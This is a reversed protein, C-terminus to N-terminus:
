DDIVADDEFSVSQIVESLRIYQDMKMQLAGLTKWRGDYAFRFVVVGPTAREAEVWYQRGNREFRMRFLENPLYYAHTVQSYRYQNENILKLYNGAIHSPDGYAGDVLFLQSALLKGEQGKIEFLMPTNDDSERFENASRWCITSVDSPEVAFVESLVILDEDDDLALFDACHEGDIGRLSVFDIPDWEETLNSALVGAPFNADMFSMEVHSIGMVHGIEHLMVNYLRSDNSWFSGNPAPGEYRQPGSDAVAWIFGLSRGTEEAYSTRLAYAVTYKSTYRLYAKDQDQWTGIKIRMEPNQDCDVQKFDRTLNAVDDGAFFNGNPARTSGPSQPSLEQIVQVWADFAKEVQLTLSPRLSADRGADTEDGFEICWTAAAKGVFWPNNSITRLEGTNGDNVGGIAVPEEIRSGQEDKSKQRVGDTKCGAFAVCLLASLALPILTKTHKPVM